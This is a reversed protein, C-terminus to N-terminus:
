RIQFVLQKKKKRTEKKERKPKPPSPAVVEGVEGTTVSAGPSTMVFFQLSLCTPLM